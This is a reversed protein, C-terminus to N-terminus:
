VQIHFRHDEAINSIIYCVAGLVTCYSVFLMEEKILLLQIM